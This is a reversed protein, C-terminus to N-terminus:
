YIEDSKCLIAPGFIRRGALKTAFTNLYTEKLRGDEDVVLVYSTDATPLVEIFGEVYEQLEELNFSETGKM